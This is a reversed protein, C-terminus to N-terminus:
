SQSQPNETPKTRVAVVNRTFQTQLVRFGENAFFRFQLERTAPNTINGDWVDAREPDHVLFLWNGRSSTSPRLDVRLTGDPLLWPGKIPIDVVEFGDRELTPIYEPVSEHESVAKLPETM